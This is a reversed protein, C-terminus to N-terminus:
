DIGIRYIVYVNWSYPTPNAAAFLNDALLDCHRKTKDITVAPFYTTLKGYDRDM